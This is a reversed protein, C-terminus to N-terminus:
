KWRFKEHMELGRQMKGNRGKRNLGGTPCVWGEIDGGRGKAYSM